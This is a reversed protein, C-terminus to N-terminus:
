GLGCAHNQPCGVSELIVFCFASYRISLAERKAFFSALNSVSLCRAFSIVVRLFLHIKYTNKAADLWCNNWTKSAGCWGEAQCLFLLSADNKDNTQLCFPELEGDTITHAHNPLCPLNCGVKEWSWFKFDSAWSTLQSPIIITHNNKM